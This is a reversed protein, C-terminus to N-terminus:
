GDRWAELDFGGKADEAVEFGMEALSERQRELAQNPTEDMDKPMVSPGLLMEADYWYRFHTTDSDFWEDFDNQGILRAMSEMTAGEVLAEEFGDPLKEKGDDTLLKKLKGVDKIIIQSQAFGYGYFSTTSSNSVHEPRMKM